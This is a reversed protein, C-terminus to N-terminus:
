FYKKAILKQCKEIGFYGALPDNHYRSIVEFYIIEPMYLFNKYYLISEM